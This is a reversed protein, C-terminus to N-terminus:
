EVMVEVILALVGQGRGQYECSKGWQAIFNKWIALGESQRLLKYFMAVM